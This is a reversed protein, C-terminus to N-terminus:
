AWLREAAIVKVEFFMTPLNLNIFACALLVKNSSNKKSIMNEDHANKVFQKNHLIYQHRCSINVLEVLFVVYLLLSSSWRKNSDNVTSTSEM